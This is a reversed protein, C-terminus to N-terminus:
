LNGFALGGAQCGLTVQSAEFDGFRDYYGGLSKLSELVEGQQQEPPAERDHLRLRPARKLQLMAQVKEAFRKATFGRNVLFILKLDKVAAPLVFEAHLVLEQNAILWECNAM